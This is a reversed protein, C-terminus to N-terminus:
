LVYAWVRAYMERLRDAISRSHWKEVTIEDSDSLDHDFMANMKDAFDTGLIVANLEDNSMLSRWDLNSSGVTSWVGDIVATKAHLVRARREYIKVGADLLDDYFSRGANFVVWGDTHAPLIIKVDVGRHAADKLADLLQPDPVFYAMTIHVQLESAGIASVLTVYLPNTGDKTVSTIARVVLPGEPALKPFYATGELPPQHTQRAWSDVFMHQLEAVVPGQLQVQTDRWPRDEPPAKRGDVSGSPSTGYVSSINIGGLFAVRGDVVLLKRHDREIINPGKVLLEVPNVPNFIEVQVGKARLDNFFEPSTNISGYADCMVRVEVGAKRREVLADAFMKGNQGDDFIYTAMNISHRASHIAALMAPYAQAGDELLIAKNGASLPTGAVAEEVALHRDIIGSDPAHQKLNALIADSREHTLPGNAGNVRPPPAGSADLIFRDVPPMACGALAVSVALVLPALKPKL